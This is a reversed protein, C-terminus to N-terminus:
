PELKRRHHRQYPHKNLEEVTEAHGRQAEALTSWRYCELIDNGGEHDFVMTEFLLKKKGGFSHDIGLWVTSVWRRDVLEEQKVVRYTLNEMLLGWSYMSIPLGDKDYYM